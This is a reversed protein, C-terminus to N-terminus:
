PPRCAVIFNSRNANITRLLTISPTFAIASTLLSYHFNESLSFGVRYLREYCVHYLDTLGAFTLYSKLNVKM